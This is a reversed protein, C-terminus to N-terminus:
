RAAEKAARLADKAKALVVLADEHKNEAISREQAAVDEAKRAEDVARQAEEVAALRTAKTACYWETYDAIFRTQKPDTVYGEGQWEIENGSTRAVCEGVVFWVRGGAFEVTVGEPAVPEVLEPAPEPRARLEVGPQVTVEVVSSSADVPLPAPTEPESAMDRLATLIAERAVAEEQSHVPANDWAARLDPWFRAAWTLSTHEELAKRAQRKLEAFLATTIAPVLVVSTAWALADMSETREVDSGKVGFDCAEALQEVTWGLQERVKRADAGCEIKMREM